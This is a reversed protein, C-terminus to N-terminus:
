RLVWFGTIVVDGTVTQNQAEAYEVAVRFRAVFDVNEEESELRKSLTRQTEAKLAAYTGPATFGFAWLVKKDRGIPNAMRVILGCDRVVKGNVEITSMQVSDRKSERPLKIVAKSTRNQTGRIGVKRYVAFDGPMAEQLACLMRDQMNREISDQGKAYNISPGGLVVLHKNTYRTIRGLEAISEIPEADANLFRLPGVLLRVEESNVFWSDGLAVRPFDVVIQGHAFPKWLAMNFNPPHRLVNDVVGIIVKMDVDFDADRVPISQITALRAISQPLNAPQTAQEVVIPVVCKGCEFAIELEKRVYDGADDIRRTDAESAGVWQPGIVVVVVESARVAERIEDPFAEGPSISTIDRYVCDPGYIHSLRDCIRGAWCASDNRRYSVFIRSRAM